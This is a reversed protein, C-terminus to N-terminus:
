HSMDFFMLYRIGYNEEPLMIWFGVLAGRTTFKSVVDHECSSCRTVFGVIVLERLATLGAHREDHFGLSTVSGSTEYTLTINVEWARLKQLPLIKLSTQRDNQRNICSPSTGM